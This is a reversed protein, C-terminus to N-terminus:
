EYAGHNLDKWESLAKDWLWALIASPAAEEDPSHKETSAWVGFESQAKKRMRDGEPRYLQHWDFDDAPDFYPGEFKAFSWAGGQCMAHVHDALTLGLLGGAVSDIPFHVGAVTRNTAIRSAQRMLMNGWYAHDNYQPALSQILLKWLLRAM